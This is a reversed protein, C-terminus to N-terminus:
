ANSAGVLSYENLEQSLLVNSVGVLSYENLERSLLVNSVGALSYESCRYASIAFLNIWVFVCLCMCVYVCVCVCVCVCLTLSHFGKLPVCLATRNTKQKKYIRVSALM